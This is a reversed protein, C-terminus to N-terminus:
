RALRRHPESYGAPQLVKVGCGPANAFPDVTRKM